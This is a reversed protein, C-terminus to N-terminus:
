VLLENNPSPKTSIGKIRPAAMLPGGGGAGEIYLVAIEKGNHSWRPRAVYGSLNTLKKAGSGDGTVLWLQQQEGEGGNSLFALKKSDPSWAPAADGRNNGDNGIEVKISTSDAATQCIYTQKATTAATSQVWAVQNGDPSVAIDGYLVTKGLQETLNMNQANLFTPFLCALLLRKM